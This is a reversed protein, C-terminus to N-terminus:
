LMLMRFREAVSKRWNPVTVLTEIPESRVVSLVHLSHM